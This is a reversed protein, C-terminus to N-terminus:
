AKPQLECKTKKLLFYHKTKNKKFLIEHCSYSELQVPSFHHDKYSKISPFKENNFQLLFELLNRWIGSAFIVCYTFIESPSLVNGATPHHNYVSRLTLLPWGKSADPPPKATTRESGEWHFDTFLDWLVLVQFAVLNVWFWLIM